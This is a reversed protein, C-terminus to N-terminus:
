ESRLSRMPDTDAARRAPLYCAFATTALALLAVGAFTVPDRGGVGYLLSGLLRTLGAACLLGIATGVVSLRLGQGLIMRMLDWPRAGLAMRMGFEPMRQNVSYSIVGYIGITALALALAAFLGVLYLAFRQSSVSIDAVQNMFRLDAIALGPDIKRVALRVQNTLLAPDARSRVAVSFFRFPVQALPWWFAPQAQSSDPRDKVDGVVGAIQLWDKEQPKDEFSIRKGIASEGPWYRTAM